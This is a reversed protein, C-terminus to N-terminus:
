AFSKPKIKKFDTDVQKLYDGKSRRDRIYKLLYRSFLGM